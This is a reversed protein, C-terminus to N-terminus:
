AVVDRFAYNTSGKGSQYCVFGVRTNATSTTGSFGIIDGRHYQRSDVPSASRNNYTSANYLVMGENNGRVDFLMEQNVTTGRVNAVGTYYFNNNDLIIDGLVGVSDSFFVDYQPVLGDEYVFKNYSLTHKCGQVANIHVGRITGTGFLNKIINGDLKNYVAGGNAGSYLVFGGAQVTVTSMVTSDLTNNEFTANELYSLVGQEKFDKFINDKVIVNNRFRTTAGVGSSFISANAGIIQNNKIEVTSTKINAATDGGHLYVGASIGAVSGSDSVRCNFTNDKVVINELAKGTNSNFGESVFCGTLASVSICNEITVNKTEQGAYNSGVYFARNATPIISKVRKVVAKDCGLVAINNMLPDQSVTVTDDFEITIDSIGCNSTTVTGTWDRNGLAVSLAANPAYIALLTGTRTSTNNVPANKIFTKDMGQGKYFMDSADLLYDRIYYLGNGFVLDAKSDGHCRGCRRLNADLDITGINGNLSDFIGFWEPYLQTAFGKVVIDGTGKFIFSRPAAVGGSFTFTSTNSLSGDVTFKVFNSISTAAVVTCAKDIILNKTKNANTFAILADIDSFDDILESMVYESGSRLVLAISTNATSAVIDFNNITVSSALVVDWTSNGRDKIKCVQNVNLSADNTASLLTNYNLVVKDNAIAENSVTSFDANELGTEGGNWRLGLGAVPRPLSLPKPDQHSQQLLVTRNATDEIKKAISVVRDFDANVTDPRFDGNNQYDTTRSSPVNSVITILDGANAGVSLTISGGAAIGVGSVTYATTLDTSDNADQGAPTIYVNLDTSEFIKFTYNFITQGANATYENRAPAVTITM